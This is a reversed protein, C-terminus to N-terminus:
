TSTVERHQTTNNYHAHAGCFVGVPPIDIHGTTLVCKRTYGGASRLLRDPGTTGSATSFLRSMSVGCTPASQGNTVLRRLDRLRDLAVSFERVCNPYPEDCRVLDIAADAADVFACALENSDGDVGVVVHGVSSFHLALIADPHVSVVENRLQELTRGNSFADSWAHMSRLADEVKDGTEPEVVVSVVADMLERIATSVKDAWAQADDTSGVVKRINHKKIVWRRARVVLV